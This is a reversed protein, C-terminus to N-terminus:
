GTLRRHQIVPIPLCWIRSKLRSDSPSIKQACTNKISLRTPIFAPNLFNQHMRSSALIEQANVVWDQMIRLENWIAQLPLIAGMMRFSGALFIGLALLGEGLSGKSLQWVVFALAGIILGSEAIYRPLSKLIQLTVGTRASLKKAEIFRRLFFDQKSLVAIERFGDVMELISGGADVSGRRMDQGSRLYRRATTM